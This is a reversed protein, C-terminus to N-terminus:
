AAEDATNLSQVPLVAKAFEAIEKEGEEKELFALFMPITRKLSTRSRPPIDHADCFRDVVDGSDLTKQHIAALEADFFVKEDSTMYASFQQM